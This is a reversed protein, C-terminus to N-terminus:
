SQQKTISHLWNGNKCRKPVIDFLCLINFCLVCQASALLGEEATLAVERKDCSIVQFYMNPHMSADLTVLALLTIVRAGM